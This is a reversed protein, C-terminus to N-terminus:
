RIETEICTNCWRVNPKGLRYTRRSCNGCVPDGCRACTSRAWGDGDAWGAGHVGVGAPALCGDDSVQCARRERKAQQKARHMEHCILCHRRGRWVATNAADYPHARPCHTKRQNIAAHSVSHPALVNEGRTCVRLHAPNVCARNCCLHDLVLGDPIPGVLVKWAVRHAVQGRYQGYGGSIKAATWVWCTNTKNVKAWFREPNFQGFAM